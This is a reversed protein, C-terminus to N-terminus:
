QQLVVPEVAVSELAVQVYRRDYSPFKSRSIKVGNEREQAQGYMESDPNIWGPWFVFAEGPLINLELVRRGGKKTFQLRISKDYQAYKRCEVSVVKIQMCAPFGFNGLSWMTYKQGEQLQLFQEVNM